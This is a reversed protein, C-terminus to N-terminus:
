PTSTSTSTTATPIIGTVTAGGPVTQASGSSKWLFLSPDMTLTVSFSWSTSNQVSSMSSISVDMVDPVTEFIALQQNLDAQTKAVGALSIQNKSSYSMSTYYVNAETNESLWNLFYSFYVHNTTLSRLNTIQSYFTALKAQEDGSISQDLSKIQDDAHSIQGNLYPAYGYTLGLYILIVFGLVTGSFLLIGTSWGPARPTERSLQEVVQQPLPM